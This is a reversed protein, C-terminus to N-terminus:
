MANAVRGGVTRNTEGFFQRRESHGIIAYQIGLDLLMKSSVEGTFAGSDEWHVNQSSIIVGLKSAISQAIFLHSTPPAVVKDVFDACQESVTSAYASFYAELESPLINMKWNGAIVPRRM